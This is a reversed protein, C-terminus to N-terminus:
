RKGAPGDPELLVADGGEAGGQEDGLLRREGVEGGRQPDGNGGDALAEVLDGLAQGRDAEGEGVVAAPDAEPRQRAGLGRDTRDGVDLLGGGGRGLLELSVPFNPQAPREAGGQSGV